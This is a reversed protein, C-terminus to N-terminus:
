DALHHAAASGVIYQQIGILHEGKLGLAFQDPDDGGPIAQIGRLRQLGDLIAEASRLELPHVAVGDDIHIVDALEGRQAALAPVDGEAIPKLQHDAFALSVLDPLDQLPSNVRALRARERSNGAREHSMGDAPSILSPEADGDGLVPLIFFVRARPESSRSKAMMTGGTNPWDSPLAPVMSPLTTSGAPAATALAMTVM